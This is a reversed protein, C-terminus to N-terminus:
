SYCHIDQPTGSAQEMTLQLVSYGMINQTRLKDVREKRLKQLKGYDSIKTLPM